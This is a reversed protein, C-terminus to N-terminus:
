GQESREVGNSSVQKLYFAYLLYITVANTYHFVSRGNLLGLDVCYLRSADFLWFIFGLVFIGFALAWARGNSHKKTRLLYIESIVYTLVLSGFLINGAFGKFFIIAVLIAVLSGILGTLLRRRNKVILSLNLYLLLGILILMGSLDFLQSLYTYTADYIFSLAGVSLALIGFLRSYRGGKMLIALGAIIFAVNSAAYWPRAIFMNLAAECYQITPASLLYEM